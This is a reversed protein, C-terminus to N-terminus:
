LVVRLYRTLARVDPFAIDAECGWHEAGAYLLCVRGCGAERAASLDQRSDGVM